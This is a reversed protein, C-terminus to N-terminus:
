TRRQVCDGRRRRRQCEYRIRVDTGSYTKCLGAERRLAPLECQVRLAPNFDYAYKGGISFVDYGRNRDTASPQYDEDPFPQFGDSKDASAFVAFRHNGLTDSFYGDIHRGSHTDAGLSIQGYPDETFEKTVINIAGAVAQTGYFLAQSGGLVEVREIMGSPFMDLPATLAYLRNNLRVGDLLWLVDEIRSGQFSIDAYDFPGNQNVIFLGPVLNQLSQAVDLYGGNQIEVATVIDVRTGYQSLQQPLMEELRGTIVVREVEGQANIIETTTGASAQTPAPAAAHTATQAQAPMVAVLSLISAGTLAAGRICKFRSSM